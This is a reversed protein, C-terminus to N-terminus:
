TNKLWKFAEIMTSIQPTRSLKSAQEAQSQKSAKSNYSERYAQAKPLGDAVKRAFAKQKSTLNVKAPNGAGLLIQEIPTQKLGEKIQARTLKLPKM